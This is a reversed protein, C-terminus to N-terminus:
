KKNGRKIKGNTTRSKTYFNDLMFEAITLVEDMQTCLNSALFERDVDQLRDFRRSHLHGELELYAGSITTVDGFISETGDDEFVHWSYWYEKKKKDFNRILRAEKM